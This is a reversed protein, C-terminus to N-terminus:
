AGLAPRGLVWDVVHCGKVHVPRRCHEAAADEGLDDLADALVLWAAIDGQECASALSTVERPWKRRKAPRFPSGFVDRMLDAQWARLAPAEKIPQGVLAWVVSNTLYLTCERLTRSCLLYFICAQVHSRLQPGPLDVRDRLQYIQGINERFPVPADAAQEALAIAERLPDCPVQDLVRRICACNFLTLRRRGARNRVAHFADCVLRIMPSPDASMLWETETM